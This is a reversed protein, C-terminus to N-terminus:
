RLFAPQQPMEKILGKDFLLKRINYDNMEVEQITDGKITYEFGYEGKFNKKINLRFFFNSKRKMKKKKTSQM